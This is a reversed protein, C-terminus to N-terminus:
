VAKAASIEASLVSENNLWAMFRAWDIELRKQEEQTEPMINIRKEISEDLCILDWILFGIGLTYFVAVCKKLKTMGLQVWAWLAILWLVIIFTLVMWRKFKLREYQEKAEARTKGVIEIGLSLLYLFIVLMVVILIMAVRYISQHNTAM